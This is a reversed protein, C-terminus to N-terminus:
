KKKEKLGKFRQEMPRYLKEKEPSESCLGNLYDYIETLRAESLDIQGSVIYTDMSGRAGNFYIEFVETGGKDLLAEALKGAWMAIGWTEKACSFVESYLDKILDLPYDRLDDIIEMCLQMRFDYNPDKFEDGHKGNWDFKIKILSLGLIIIPM